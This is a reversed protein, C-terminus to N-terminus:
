NNVGDIQIDIRNYLRDSNLFLFKASQTSKLDNISVSQEKESRISKISKANANWKSQCSTVFYDSAFCPLFLTIALFLVKKMFLTERFASKIIIIM